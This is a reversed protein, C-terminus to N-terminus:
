SPDEQTKFIQFYILLRKQTVNQTFQRGASPEFSNCFMIIDSLPCFKFIDDSAFNQHHKQNQGYQVLVQSLMATTGPISTLIVWAKDNPRQPSSWFLRYPM